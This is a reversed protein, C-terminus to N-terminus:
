CCSQNDIIDAEAAQPGGGRGIRCAPLPGELPRGDMQHSPLRLGFLNGGGMVSGRPSDGGRASGAGCVREGMCPRQRLGDGM